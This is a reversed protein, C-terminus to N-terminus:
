RTGVMVKVIMDEPPNPLTEHTVDNTCRGNGM